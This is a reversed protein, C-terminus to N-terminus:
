SFVLWYLIEAKSFRLDLHKHVLTIWPETIEEEGCSYAHNKELNTFKVKSSGPSVKFGDVQGTNHLCTAADNGVGRSRERKRVYKWFGCSMRPLLTFIVLRKPTRDKTHLLPNNVDSDCM